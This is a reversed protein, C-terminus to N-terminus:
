SDAMWNTQWASYHFGSIVYLYYKYRCNCCGASSIFEALVLNFM